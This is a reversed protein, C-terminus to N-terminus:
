LNVRIGKEDAVSKIANREIESIEESNNMLYRSQFALEYATKHDINNNEEIFECTCAIEYNQVASILGPTNPNVDDEIVYALIQAGLSSIDKCQVCFDYLPHEEDRNFNKVIVYPYEEDDVHLVTKDKYNGIIDLIKM